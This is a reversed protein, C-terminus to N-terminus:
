VGFFGHRKRSVFGQEPCERQDDDQRAHGTNASWCGWSHGREVWVRDVRDNGPRSLGCQGLGLGGNRAGCGRHGSGRGRFGKGWLGSGRRRHDENETGGGWQDQRGDNCAALLIIGTLDDTLFRGVAGREIRTVIKVGLPCYLVNAPSFPIVVAHIIVVDFTVFEVLHIRVVQGFRDLNALRDLDDCVHDRRLILAGIGGVPRQPDTCLIETWQAQRDHHFLTLIHLVPQRYVVAQKTKPLDSEALTFAM